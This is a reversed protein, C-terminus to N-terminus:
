IAGTAVGCWIALSTLFLGIVIAESVLRIAFM